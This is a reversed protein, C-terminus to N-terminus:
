KNAGMCEKCKCGILLMIASLGVLVYVINLVMPWSGLIMEVVNWSSGMFYGVGVLGWNLAGILILVWAIWHVVCCKRGGECMM